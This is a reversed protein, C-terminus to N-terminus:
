ELRVGGHELRKTKFHPGAQEERTTSSNCVSSSPPVLDFGDSVWRQMFTYNILDSIRTVNENIWTIRRSDSVSSFVTTHHHHDDQITSECPQFCLQPTLVPKITFGPFFNCLIELSFACTPSFYCNTKFNSSIQSVHFVM